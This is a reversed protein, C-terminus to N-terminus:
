RYLIYIDKLIVIITKLRYKIVCCKSCLYETGASIKNFVAHGSNTERSCNPWERVFNDILM